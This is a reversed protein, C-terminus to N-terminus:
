FQEDDSAGKPIPVLTIKAQSYGSGRRLTQALPSTDPSNSIAHGYKSAFGGIAKTRKPATKNAIHLKHLARKCMSDTPM